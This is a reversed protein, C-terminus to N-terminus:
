HDRMTVFLLRLTVFLLRIIASRVAAFCASLCLCPFLSNVMVYVDDGVSYVIEELKAARYHRRAKLEEEEGKRSL